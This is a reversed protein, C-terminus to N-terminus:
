VRLTARGAAYLGIVPVRPARFSSPELDLAECYDAFGIAERRVVGSYPETPAPTTPRDNETLM